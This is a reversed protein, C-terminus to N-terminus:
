GAAKPSRAELDILIQKAPIGGRYSGLTGDSRVVRHCPVVVPLPNTACATGAARVARPSGAATAVETYSETRGYGIESLHKIVELRFGHAMRLDLPVDFARRTGAFYEDLEQAVPDLRKPAQLIRPSLRAALMALVADHGEIDFAVRVLGRETAALLLAGVPTDLTRYSVDLLHDDEASRALRAHLRAMTDDDIDINLVDNM